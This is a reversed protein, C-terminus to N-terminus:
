KGKFGRFVVWVRKKHLPDKQTLFDPFDPLRFTSSIVSKTYRGGRLETTEEM